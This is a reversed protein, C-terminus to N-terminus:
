KKAKRGTAKRALAKMNAASDKSTNGVNDSHIVFGKSSRLLVGDKIPKRIGNRIERILKNDKVGVSAKSVAASDFLHEAIDKIAVPNKSKRCYDIIKVEVPRLGTEKDRDMTRGSKVGTPAEARRVVKRPAAKKVAAAAKKPKPTTKAKKTAKKAAKKVPKKAAKKKPVAAKKPTAKKRAVKKGAKKTAPASTAKDIAADLIAAPVAMVSQGNGGSGNSKAVEVEAMAHAGGAQRREERKKNREQIKRRLAEARKAQQDEELGM